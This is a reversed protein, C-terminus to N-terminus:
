ASNAIVVIRRIGPILAICVVKVSLSTLGACGQGIGGSEFVPRQASRGQNKPGPNVQSQRRPKM